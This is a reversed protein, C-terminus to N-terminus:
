RRRFAFLGFAGGVWVHLEDVAMAEITPSASPMEDECEAGVDAVTTTAGDAGVVVLLERGSDDHIGAVIAGDELITFATAAETSELPVLPGDGLARLVGIGERLLARARGREVIAEDEPDFEDTASFTKGGDDSRLARGDALLVELGGRQRLAVVHGIPHFM